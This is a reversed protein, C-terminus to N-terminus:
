LPVKFIIHFLYYVGATVLVSTLIIELPKRSGGMYLFVAMVIPTMILYGIYIIGFVYGVLVAFLLVIAAAKKPPITQTSAGECNRVFGEVILLISLLALAGAFIYPMFDSGLTNPLNRDPLQSTLYGYYGAFGLLVLGIITNEKKIGSM